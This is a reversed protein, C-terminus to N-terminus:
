EEDNEGEFAIGAAACGKKTVRYKTGRFKRVMKDDKLNRVLRQVKSKTFGARKGLVTFSAHKDAHILRLLVNEDEENVAGKREAVNEPMFEAMVTPMLRGKEDKVRDSTIEKMEFSIPDFEPGRFKGQWHLTTTRDGGDAWLTLNGDVENVFASGGMPLLSDASANKIPHCNVIGTPTSPLFTLQRLLGAYAGLQANSNGDDGQFYAAATDIIVMRLDPIAEAERRIRALNAGIDLRGDIFYISATDTNLGISDAMGVYRARVDQPNEGAFYLVSGQFTECGAFNEGTAIAAAARM